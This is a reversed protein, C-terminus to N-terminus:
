AWPRQAAARGVVVDAPHLAVQGVRVEVLRQRVIAVTNESDGIQSSGLARGARFACPMVLSTAKEEVLRKVL